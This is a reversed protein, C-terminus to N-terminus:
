LGWRKKTRHSDGCNQPKLRTPYFLHKVQLKSQWRRNRTLKLHNTLNGLTGTSGNNKLDQCGVKLVNLKMVNRVRGIWVFTKNRLKYKKSNTIEHPAKEKYVILSWDYNLNSPPTSSFNNKIGFKKRVGM